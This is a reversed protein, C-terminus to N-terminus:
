LSELRARCQEFRKADIEIGVFRRGASLAAVGYTGTGAFPDLVLGNEPALWNILQAAPAVSQEWTYRSKAPPVGDLLDPHWDLRGSPWPGNSFALWPKWTQLTQRALIRSSAGPLPQCYVWGYALHEGLRAIVQDLHIKGSMAVLVGQPKLLRAAETALDTWLEQSEEPYPPDTVILDVSGDVIDDARKAFDGGLLDWGDGSADDGEFRNIARADTDAVRARDRKTANRTARKAPEVVGDADRQFWEEQPRNRGGGDDGGQEAPAVDAVQPRNRGGGLDEQVTARAVGLMEATARQSAELEALRRALARRSEADMNFPSLDVSRVFASIDDYGPGVAKWRDDELLWELEACTREFSYGSLHASELLRGYVINPPEASV